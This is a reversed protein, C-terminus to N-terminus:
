NLFIDFIICLAIIFILFLYFEGNKNRNKYLDNINNHFPNSYYNNKEHHFVPSSERYYEGFDTQQENHILKTQKKPFHPSFRQNLDDDNINLEKTDTEKECYIPARAPSYYNKKQPQEFMQRYAELEQTDTQKERVVLPKERLFNRTETFAEKKNSFRSTQDFYTRRVTPQFSSINLSDIFNQTNLAINEVDKCISIM